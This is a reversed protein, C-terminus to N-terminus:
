ILTPTLKGQRISGEHVPKAAAMKLLKGTEDYIAQTKHLLETGRKLQEDAKQGASAGLTVELAELQTNIDLLMKLIEDKSIMKESM